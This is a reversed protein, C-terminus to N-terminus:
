ILEWAIRYCDLDKIPQRAPNRVIEGRRRWSLGEIASLDYAYGPELGQQALRDVLSAVTQEGEGRVIMDVEPHQMLIARDHYTPHVGGYVTVIGPHLSKIAQLVRLCCPHASTSGVHAIMVLDTAFAEVTRVIETDSLHYCAADLLRVTHGRDLLPGGIMLLGLPLQHGVGQDCVISQLPANILLIQM